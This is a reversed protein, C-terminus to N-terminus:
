SFAATTAGAMGATGSPMRQAQAQAMSHTLFLFFDFFMGRYCEFIPSLAM